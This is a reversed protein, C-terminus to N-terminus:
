PRNTAALMPSSPGYAAVILQTLWADNSGRNIETAIRLPVAIKSATEALRRNQQVDDGALSVGLGESDILSSSAMAPHLYENTLPSGMKSVRRSPQHSTLFNGVRRAIM